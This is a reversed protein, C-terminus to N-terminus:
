SIHRLDIPRSKQKIVLRKIPMEKEFKYWRLYERSHGIYIRNIRKLSFLPHISRNVRSRRFKFGFTLEISFHKISLRNIASCVFTYWVVPLPSYWKHFKNKRHQCLSNVQYKLFGTSNGRCVVCNYSSILTCIVHM